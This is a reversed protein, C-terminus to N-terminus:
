IHILSLGTITGSNTLTISISDENFLDPDNRDSLRFSGVLTSVGVTGQILGSDENVLTVGDEVAQSNFQIGNGLGSDDLDGIISGSNMVMAGDQPLIFIGDNNASITGSEANVFQGALSLFGAAESQIRDGNGIITGSNTFSDVDGLIIFGNQESSITGSNNFIGVDDRFILGRFDATISGSNTLVGVEGDIDLGDIEGMIIGSNNFSAVGGNNIEVAESSTGDITGSNIFNNVDGSIRVGANGLLLGNNTFAGSVPADLAIATQGSSLDSIQVTGNNTFNQLPPPPAGDAFFVATEIM